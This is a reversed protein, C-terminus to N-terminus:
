PGEPADNVGLTVGLREYAEVAEAPDGYVAQRYLLGERVTLLWVHGADEFGGRPVRRRMRGTVIAAHEDLAVPDSGRVSYVFDQSVRELEAIVEDAALPAPGGTVTFALAKPHYLARMAIWDRAAFVRSMETVLDEANVRRVIGLAV